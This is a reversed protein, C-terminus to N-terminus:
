FITSAKQHIREEIHLAVCVGHTPSHTGECLPIFASNFKLTPKKSNKKSRQCVGRARLLERWFLFAGWFLTSAM